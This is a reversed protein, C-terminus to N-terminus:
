EEGVVALLCSVDAASVSGTFFSRQLSLCSVFRGLPYYGFDCDRQGLSHLSRGM